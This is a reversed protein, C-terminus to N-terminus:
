DLGNHMAPAGPDLGAGVVMAGLTRAFVPKAEEAVILLDGYSLAYGGGRMRQFMFADLRFSDYQAMYNQPMHQKATALVANRSAVFGDLKIFITAVPKALRPAVAPVHDVITLQVASTESEALKSGGCGM